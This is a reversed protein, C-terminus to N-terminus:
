RGSRFAAVRATGWGLGDWDGDYEFVTVAAPPYGLLMETSAVPDGEGDDLLQAVTAVTPNHGVVVLTTVETLTERILDLATDSGATYLGRDVLPTLSWGAGRAVAEWTEVARTAASVLAADPEIGTSRLWGGVVTAQARGDDSLRRDADAGGEQAATAHRMLVLRRSRPEPM